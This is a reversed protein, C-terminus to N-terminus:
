IKKIEVEHNKWFESLYRFSNICSVAQQIMTFVKKALYDMDVERYM